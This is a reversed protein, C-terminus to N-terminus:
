AQLFEIVKLLDAPREPESFSLLEQVLDYTQPHVSTQLASCALAKLDDIRSEFAAPSKFAEFAAPGSVMYLLLVGLSFLDSAQTGAQEAQEPAIFVAEGALLRSPQNLRTLGSDVLVVQRDQTILINAPTLNLHARGERHFLELERCIKLLLLLGQKLSVSGMREVLTRLPVGALWPRILMTQEANATEILQYDGAGRPDACLPALAQWSTDPLLTSDILRALYAKRTTQSQIQCTLAQERKTLMKVLKYDDVALSHWVSEGADPLAEIPVPAEAQKKLAKKKLKPAGPEPKRLKAPAKKLAEAPPSLEPAKVALIQERRQQLWLELLKANTNEKASVCSIIMTECRLSYELWPGFNVQQSLTDSQEFSKNLALAALQAQNSVFEAALFDYSWLCAAPTQVSLYRLDPQELKFDQFLTQDSV